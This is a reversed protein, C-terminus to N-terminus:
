LLAVCRKVRRFGEVFFSFPTERVIVKEHFVVVFVPLVVKSKM